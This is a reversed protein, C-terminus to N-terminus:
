DSHARTWASHNIWRGYGAPDGYGPVVNLVGDPLGAETAIQGLWLASLSTVESPKLVIACGAAFAPAVKWAALLLPFNWPLIQAVVGVPVRESRVRANPWAVPITAGEIKSPWGAYYFFHQAALEVDTALVDGRVKGSVYRQGTRHRLPHWM